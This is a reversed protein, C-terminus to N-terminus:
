GPKSPWPGRPDLIRVRGTFRGPDGRRQANRLRDAVERARHLIEPTSWRSVELGTDRIRDEREKEELVARRVREAVDPGPPGSRRRDSADGKAYKERGDAEGVTASDPWYGDVRGLFRGQRDYIEAQPIPLALGLQHLTVFSFSELWNERRPDILRYAARGLALYPWGDQWTLVEDIASLDTL